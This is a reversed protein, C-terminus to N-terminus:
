KLFDPSFEIQISATNNPDDVLTYDGDDWYYNSFKVGSSAMGMWVSYSYWPINAIEVKEYYNSTAGFETHTSSCEYKCNTIANSRILHGEHSFENIDFSLTANYDTYIQENWEDRFIASCEVHMRNGTSTVKFKANTEDDFRLGGGVNRTKGAENASKVNFDFDLLDIANNLTEPASRIECTMNAMKKTDTSNVSVCVFSYPMGTEFLKEAEEGSIVLSDGPAIKKDFLKSTTLEVSSCAIVFSMVDPETQKIVIEKGKLSHNGDANRYGSIKFQWQTIGYPHCERKQGVVKDGNINLLSHSGLLNATCFYDKDEILKCSFLQYVFDYFDGNELFKCNNQKLWAKFPEFAKNSMGATSWLDYLGVIKEKKIRSTKTLYYLMSAMGYGHNQYTTGATKSDLTCKLFGTIYEKIFGANMKGGDMFQESWVAGAEYLVVEEGQNLLKAIPWRPDYDAQYYHSLEHIITQKLETDNSDAALLKVLNLEVTSYQDYKMDQCFFGYANPYWSNWTFYILITRKDASQSLDAHNYGQSNIIKMGLAHLQKVADEVYDKVKLKLKKVQEVEKSSLITSTFPTVDIVWSVNGNTGDIARTASPSDELRPAHALGIIMSTNEDSETAYTPPLTVSYIGESYTADLCVDHTGVEMLSKRLTKTNMVFRIDDSKETSKIKITIAKDCKAPTVIQYFPSVEQEGGIEGKKVETIDVKEDKSFTESPFTISIDGKTITGGSASVTMDDGTNVPTDPKNPEKPDNSDSCAAFTASLLLVVCMLSLTAWVHKTITRM